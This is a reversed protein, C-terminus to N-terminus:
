RTYAFATNNHSLLVDFSGFQFVPSDRLDDLKKFHENEAAAKLNDLSGFKAGPLLSMFMDYAISDLGNKINDYSIQMWLTDMNITTKLIDFGTHLLKPADDSSSQINNLFALRPLDFGLVKSGSIVYNEVRKAADDRITLFGEGDTKNHVFQTFVRIVDGLGPQNTTKTHLYFDYNSQDSGQKESDPSEDSRDTSVIFHKANNLRFGKVGLDILQELTNKLKQQAVESSMQLDYKEGFQSLFFRNGHKKWAPESKGVKKWNNETKSTVFASLFQDEDTVDNKIAEQFTPDGEGVYNPTLDMVVHLDQARFILSVRQYVKLTLYNAIESTNASSSRLGDKSV